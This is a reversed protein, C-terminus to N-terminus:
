GLVVGLGFGVFWCVVWFLVLWFILCLIVYDVLVGVFVCGVLTFWISLVLGDCDVFMKVCFMLGLGLYVFVGVGFCVLLLMFWCAVRTIVCNFFLTCLIFLVFWCCGLYIGFLWGWLWLCILLCVVCLM